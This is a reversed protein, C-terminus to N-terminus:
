RGAVAQRHASSRSAAIRRRVCIRASARRRPETLPKTSADCKRAIAQHRRPASSSTSASARLASSWPAGYAIGIPATASASTSTSRPWSAAASDIMLAPAEAGGPRTVLKASSTRARRRM